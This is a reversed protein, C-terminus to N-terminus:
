REIEVGVTEVDKVAEPKDVRVKVNQVGGHGLCINAIDEALAEVTYRQSKKVHDRIEKVVLSYDVGNSLNDTQACSRTDTFLTVNILIKRPIAREREYVGLIGEVHLNQILVKDM